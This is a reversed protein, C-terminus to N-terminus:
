ATRKWIKMLRNTPRSEATGSNSLSVSAVDTEQSTNGSSSDANIRTMTPATFPNSLNVTTTATHSHSLNASSQVGSSRGTASHGGEVRFFEGGSFPEAWTTGPFLVSPEEYDAFNNSVTAYQTYTSGIPYPVFEIPKLAVKSYYNSGSKYCSAIYKDNGDYFGLKVPDFVPATNTIAFSMSNGLIVTKIYCQGNSASVTPTENTLVEFVAGGSEIISGQSIVPISTSSPNVLNVRDFGLQNTNIALMMNNLNVDGVGFTPLKTAM